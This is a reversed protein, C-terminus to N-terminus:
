ATDAHRQTEADLAARGVAPVVAANDQESM